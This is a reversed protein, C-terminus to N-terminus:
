PCKGPATAAYPIQISQSTTSTYSDTVSATNQYYSTGVKYDACVTVTGTQGSSSAGSGSTASTAFPIGYVNTGVPPTPTV